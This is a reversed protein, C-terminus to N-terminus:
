QKYTQIKSTIAMISSLAEFLRAVNYINNNIEAKMIFIIMAADSAEHNEFNHIYLNYPKLEKNYPYVVFNTKQLQQWFLHRNEKLTTTWFKSNDAHHLLKIDDDLLTIEEISLDEAIIKAVSVCLHPSNKNALIFAILKKTIQREFQLELLKRKQSRLAKFAKYTLILCIAILLSLVAILYFKQMTVNM